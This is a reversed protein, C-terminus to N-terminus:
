RSRRRERRTRCTTAARNPPQNRRADSQVDPASRCLIPTADLHPLQAHLEVELGLPIFARRRRAAIVVVRGPASAAGTTAVVTTAVVTTAVVTTAVVTTAVVTAAVVTAPM